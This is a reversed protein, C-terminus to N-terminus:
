YEVKVLYLGDPPATMEAARRDKSELIRKVDDKNLKGEGVKRLTGVINRVMHHLFSRAAVTITIEDDTREVNIDDLTIIPSKAQCMIARFSTFDHKGILIKAAENMLNIDLDKKVVWALDRNIASPTNRNIIKYKYVRRLASFRAHFSQEVIECGLIVIDEPKLFHNIARIVTYPEYYKHLDFHAVQGLAHVGADTRGSGYVETKEHSFGFIANEITEQITPLGPQFQWGFYRTGKYEIVIKYRFM